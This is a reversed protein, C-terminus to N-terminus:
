RWLGCGICKRNGVNNVAQCRGCIWDDRALEIGIVSFGDEDKILAEVPFLQQGIMLFIGENNIYVNSTEVRIKTKVYFEEEAQISNFCAAIAIFFYLFVRHM